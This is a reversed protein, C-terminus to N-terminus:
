TRIWSVLWLVEYVIEFWARAKMLPELTSYKREGEREKKWEKREKLEQNELIELVGYLTHNSMM